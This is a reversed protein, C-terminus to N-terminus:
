NGIRAPRSTRAAPKIAPAISIPQAVYVAIRVEGPRESRPFRQLIAPASSLDLGWATRACLRASLVLDRDLPSIDARDGAAAVAGHLIVECAVPQGGADVATRLEVYRPAPAPRHRRTV